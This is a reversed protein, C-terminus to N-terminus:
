RPTTRRARRPARRTTSGRRPASRSGACSRATAPSRRTASATASSTAACGGVTAAPARAAARASPRAPRTATSSTAPAAAATPRTTPRGGAPSSAAPPCTNRGSNITCCFATWGDCCTGCVAGYATGPKLLYSLPNVALASGVVATRALFRRRNHGAASSRRAPVLRQVGPRPAPRGAEPSPDRFSLTMPRLTVEPPSRPPASCPRQGEPRPRTAERKDASCPTSASPGATSPSSGSAAPRARAAGAPPGPQQVHRGSLRPVGPPSCPPASATPGTSSWARLPPRAGMLDVAGSGFDGRDEPLAFNAM